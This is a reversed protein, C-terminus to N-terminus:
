RHPRLPVSSVATIIVALTGEALLVNINEDFYPLSAAVADFVTASTLKKDISVIGTIIAMVCSVHYIRFIMANQNSKPSLM